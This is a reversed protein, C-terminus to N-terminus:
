DAEVSKGFSDIANTISIMEAVLAKREKFAFWPLNKLAITTNDHAERLSEVVESNLDLQTKM